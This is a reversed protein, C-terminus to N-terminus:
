LIKDPVVLPNPTPTPLSMGIVNVGLSISATYFAQAMGASVSAAAVASDKQLPKSFEATLAAQLATKASALLGPDIVVSSILSFPPVPPPLAWMISVIYASWASSLIAAMTAPPCGAPFAIVPFSQKTITPKSQYVALGLSSSNQHVWDQYMTTQNKPDFNKFFLDEYTSKWSTFPQIPM